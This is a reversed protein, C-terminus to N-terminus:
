NSSNPSTLQSNALKKSIELQKKSIQKMVKTVLKKEKHIEKELQTTQKRIKKSSKGGSVPNLSILKQQLTKIEQSKLHLTKLMESIKSCTQAIHRQLSVSLSRIEGLNNMRESNSLNDINQKSVHEIFRELKEISFNRVLDSRM